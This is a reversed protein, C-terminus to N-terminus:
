DISYYISLQVSSSNVDDDFDNSEDRNSVKILQFNVDSFHGDFQLIENEVTKLAQKCVAYSKSWVTLRVTAVSLGSPTGDLCMDQEDDDLEVVMAPYIDGKREGPTIRNGLRGSSKPLFLLLQILKPTIDISEM